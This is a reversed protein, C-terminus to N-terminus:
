SSLTSESWYTTSNGKGPLRADVTRTEPVFCLSKIGMLYSVAGIGGRPRLCIRPAHGLAPGRGGISEVM